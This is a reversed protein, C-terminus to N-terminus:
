VQGECTNIYADCKMSKRWNKLFFFSKAKYYGFIIPNVYQNFVNYLSFETYENFLLRNLKTKQKWIATNIKLFHKRKDSVLHGDYVSFCYTFNIYLVFICISSSYFIVTSYHTYGLNMDMGTNSSFPLIFFVFYSFLKMFYMQINKWYWCDAVVAM